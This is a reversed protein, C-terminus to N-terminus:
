WTWDSYGLLCALAKPEDRYFDDLFSRVQPSIVVQEAPVRNLGQYLPDLVDRLKRLMERFVTHSHVHLRIRRSLERYIGQLRRSRMDTTPNLVKFEYDDYFTPNIGAFRCIGQMVWCPSNRLAHFKVIHIQDRKFLKIYRELYFSYRGQELARLHQPFATAEKHTVPQQEVYKEFTIDAAIRGNQRAFHYWSVLRSIPERLIFVLHVSPLADRIRSATGPSFLYDPEAELRVSDEGCHKFFEERKELGQDFYYLRPLPYEKDLFFRTEKYSSSCIEPHDSLYKFVSTTAARTVGGIILERTM